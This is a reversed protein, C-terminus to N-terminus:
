AGRGERNATALLWLLYPAGIVGTVIGVPVAVGLLHQAAFDAALVLVVGVLASPVLALGASPLMRRAVPACVFAVFAVPGAFATATAALAVGLALVALRTREVPVGLGGAADDGLQLIRLSRAVLAVLPLLVALIAALVAVDGWPPTGLSGVMWVLAERVDNVNARSTLYGLGANVLFAVAVGILVFRYGSVGSRWALLYIAVAVVVAGAFASLSVAVGSLGGLLIASAAALSAGGSVGIIDPSALPNRLVTQFLAGALAFAVGVEAGLLLRPLRLRFVVFSGGGEGQGVLTRLLDPLTMSYGGVSITAWALALALLALVLVVTRTRRPDASHLRAPHGDARGSAHRSRGGPGAAPATAPATRAGAANM